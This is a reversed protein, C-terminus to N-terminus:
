RAAPTAAAAPAAPAAALNSLLTRLRPVLYDVAEPGKVAGALRESGARGDADPVVFLPIMKSTYGAPELQERDRDADFALIRLNGLPEDLKGAVAAEHFYRCPECWTAGVYVLLAQGAAEARRREARVARVVDAGVAADIWVLRRVPALPRGRRPALIPAAEASPVPAQPAKAQDLQEQVAPPPAPRSCGALATVAAVVILWIKM